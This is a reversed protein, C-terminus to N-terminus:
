NMYVCNHKNQTVMSRCFIMSFIIILHVSVEETLPPSVVVMVSPPLSTLRATASAAEKTRTPVFRQAAASSGVETLNKLGMCWIMAALPSSGTRNRCCIRLEPWTWTSSIRSRRTTRRVTAFQLSTRTSSGFIFRILRSLKKASSPSTPRQLPLLFRLRHRFVPRALMEVRSRVPLSDTSYRM